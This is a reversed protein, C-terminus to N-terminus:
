VKSLAEYERQDECRERLFFRGDRKSSRMRFLLGRFHLSCLKRQKRGEKCILYVTFSVNSVVNEDEERVQEEEITIAAKPEDDGREEDELPMEEEVEAANFPAPM